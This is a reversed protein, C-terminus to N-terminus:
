SGLMEECVEAVGDRAREARMSDLLANIDHDRLEDEQLEAYRAKDLYPNGKLEQEIVGEIPGSLLELNCIQAVRRLFVARRPARGDSARLLHAAVIGKDTARDSRPVEEM